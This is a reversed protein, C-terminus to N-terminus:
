TSSAAITVIIVLCKSTSRVYSQGVLIRLMLQLNVKILTDKETAIDDGDEFDVLADNADSQKAKVDTAGYNSDVLSNLPIGSSGLESTM